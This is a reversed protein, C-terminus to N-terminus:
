SLGQGPVPVASASLGHGAGIALLFWRGSGWGQHQRWGFTFEVETGVSIVEEPPAPLAGLKVAGYRQTLCGLVRVCEAPLLAGRLRLVQRRGACGQCGAGIKPAGEQAGRSPFGLWSGNTKRTIENM